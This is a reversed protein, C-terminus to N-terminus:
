FIINKYKNKVVERLKKLHSGDGIINLQIRNLHEEDIIAFAKIINDLNQVAGYVWM